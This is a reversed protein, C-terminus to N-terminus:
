LYWQNITVSEQQNIIYNKSLSYLNQNNPSKFLKIHYSWCLLTM